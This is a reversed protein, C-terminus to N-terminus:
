SPNEPQEPLPHTATQQERIPGTFTPLGDKLHSAYATATQQERIPNPSHRCSEGKEQIARFCPPPFNKRRVPESRAPSPLEERKGPFNIVALSSLDALPNM